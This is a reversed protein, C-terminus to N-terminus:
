PYLSDVGYESLGAFVDVEHWVLENVNATHLHPVQVTDPSMAVAAEMAPWMGEEPDESAVPVTTVSSSSTTAVDVRPNTRPKKRSHSSRSSRTGFLRTAAAEMAQVVAAETLLHARLQATQHRRWRRMGPSCTIDPLGQRSQSIRAEHISEGNRRCLYGSPCKGGIRFYGRSNSKVQSYEAPWTEPESYVVDEPWRCSLYWAKSELHRTCFVGLREAEGPCDVQDHPISIEAHIDLLTPQAPPLDLQMTTVTSQVAPAAPVDEPRTVIAACYRRILGSSALMFAITRVVGVRAM